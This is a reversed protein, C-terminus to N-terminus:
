IQSSGNRRWSKWGVLGFAGTLVRGAPGSADDDAVSTEDDGLGSPGGGEDVEAEVDMGVGGGALAGSRANWKEGCIPASTFGGISVSGNPVSAQATWLAFALTVGKLVLKASGSSSLKTKAFSVM